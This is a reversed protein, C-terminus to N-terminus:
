PAVEPQSEVTQTESQSGEWVTVTAVARYTKGSTLPASYDAYCYSSNSSETTSGVTSWWLLTKVQLEVTVETKTATTYGRVWASAAPGIGSVDVTCSASKIYTMYPSIGGVAKAAVSANPIVCVLAIFLACIVSLVKKNRSM